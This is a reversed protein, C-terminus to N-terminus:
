GTGMYPKQKHRSAIRIWYKEGQRTDSYKFCSSLGNDWISGDTNFMAFAPKYGNIDQRCNRIFKRRERKSFSYKETFNKVFIEEQTTLKM